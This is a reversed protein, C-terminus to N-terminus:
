IRISCAVEAEMALVTMVEIRRRERNAEVDANRSGEIDAWM